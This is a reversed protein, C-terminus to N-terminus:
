KKLGAAYLDPWAALIDGLRDSIRQWCPERYYCGVWNATAKHSFFTLAYAIMYCNILPDRSLVAAWWNGEAVVGTRMDIGSMIEDITKGPFTCSYGGCPPTTGVNHDFDLVGQGVRAVAQRDNPDGYLDTFANKLVYIVSFQNGYGLQWFSAQNCNQIVQFYGGPPNQNACNSYNIRGRIGEAHTWFVVMQPEISKRYRADFAATAKIAAPLMVALRDHEDAPIGVPAGPQDFGYKDMYHQPDLSEPAAAAAVPAKYPALDAFAQWAAQSLQAPSRVGGIFGAILSFLLMVTVGAILTVARRRGGEGLAAGIAAWIGHADSKSADKGIVVVRAGAAGGVAGSTAHLNAGTAPPRQKPQLRQAPPSPQRVPLLTQEDLAPLGSRPGLTSLPRATTRQRPTFQSLTTPTEERAGDSASGPAGVARVTPMSPLTIAPIVVSSGDVWDEQGASSQRGEHASREPDPKKKRGWQM